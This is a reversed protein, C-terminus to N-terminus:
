LISTSLTKVKLKHVHDPCRPALIMFLIVFMPFLPFLKSASIFSQWVRIRKMRETFYEYFQGWSCVISGTVCVCLVNVFFYKISFAIVKSFQYAGNVSSGHGDNNDTSTTNNIITNVYKWHLWLCIEVDTPLLDYLWYIIIVIVFVVVVVVIIIIIIVLSSLKSYYM